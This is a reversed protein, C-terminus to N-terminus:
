PYCPHNPDEIYILDYAPSKEQKMHKGVVEGNVVVIFYHNEAVFCEGTNVREIYEYELKGGGKDHIQYPKGAQKELETVSTGLLLASFQEQDMMASRSFCGVLGLACVLIWKMLTKEM